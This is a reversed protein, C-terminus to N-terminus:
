PLMMSATSLSTMGQPFMPLNTLREATQPPPSRRQLEPHLTKCAVPLQGPEGLM